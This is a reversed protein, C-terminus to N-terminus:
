DKRLRRDSLGSCDTIVNFVIEKACDIDEKFEIRVIQNCFNAVLTGALVAWHHPFLGLNVGNGATRM